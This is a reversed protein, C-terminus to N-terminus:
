YSRSMIQQVAEASDLQGTTSDSLTPGKNQLFIFRTLKNGSV